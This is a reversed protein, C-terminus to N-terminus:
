YTRIQVRETRSTLPFMDVSCCMRHHSPRDRRVKKVKEVIATLRMKAISSLSCSKSQM